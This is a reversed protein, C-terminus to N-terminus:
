IVEILHHYNSDQQLYIIIFYIYIKYIIIKLFFFNLLFVLFYHYIAVIKEKILDFIVLM